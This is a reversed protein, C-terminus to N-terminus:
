KSLLRLHPSTVYGAGAKLRTLFIAFAVILKTMGAQRDTRGDTRRDTQV